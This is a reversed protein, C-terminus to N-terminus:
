AAQGSAERRPAAVVQFGALENITAVGANIMDPWASRPISNRKVWSNVTEYRGVYGLLAHLKAAGGADSIIQRHSRM